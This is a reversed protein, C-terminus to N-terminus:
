SFVDNVTLDNFLVITKEFYGKNLQRRGDEDM